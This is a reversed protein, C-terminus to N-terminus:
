LISAPGDLTPRGYTLAADQNNDLLEAVPQTSLRRMWLLISRGAKILARFLWYPSIYAM